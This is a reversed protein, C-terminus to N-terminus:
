LPKCKIIQNTSDYIHQLFEKTSNYDSYDETLEDIFKFEEYNDYIKSPYCPIYRYAGYDIHNSVIVAIVKNEYDM